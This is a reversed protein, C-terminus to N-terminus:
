FNQLYVEDLYQLFEPSRLSMKESVPTLGVGEEDKVIDFVQASVGTVLLGQLVNAGHTDDLGQYLIRIWSELRKIGSTDSESGVVSIVLRAKNDTTPGMSKCVIYEPTEYPIDTDIYRHFHDLM